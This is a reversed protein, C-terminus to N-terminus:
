EGKWTDRITQKTEKGIDVLLWFIEILAILLFVPIITICLYTRRKWPNKIRIISKM